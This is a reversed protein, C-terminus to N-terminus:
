FSCVVDVADTATVRGAEMMEVYDRMSQKLTNLTPMQDDILMWSQRLLQYGTSTFNYATLLDTLRSIDPYSTSRWDASSM